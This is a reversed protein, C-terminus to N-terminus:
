ASPSPKLIQTTCGGSPQALVRRVGIGRADDSLYHRRAVSRMNGGALDSAMLARISPHPLEGNIRRQQSSRGVAVARPQTFPARERIIQVDSSSPFLVFPSQNSVAAEYFIVFIVLFM